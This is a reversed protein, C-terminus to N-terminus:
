TKTASKRRRRLLVGIAILLVILVVGVLALVNAPLGSPAVSTSTQTSTVSGISGVPRISTYLNYSAFLTLPPLSGQTLSGLTFLDTRFAQISDTYYIPVYPTHQAIIDQMEWIYKQRQTPDLSAHQLAYLQDVTSNSFGSDSECGPVCVQSTIFATLFLDPDLDEATWDWIFTDHQWNAVINGLSDSDVIAPVGKVNIQAWWNAIIQATRFEESYSSPVQIKYVMKVGDPSVRTGDPGIKYGADDLIKAAMTLNFPISPTNPNHWFSLASPMISNAPEAYGQWVTDALVTKNIAMALATRVRQDRLTPNGTGNPFMNFSLYFYRIDPKAIVQVNGTAALEPVASPPLIPGLIDIEGSRLALVMADTSTFYRIILHQIKPPGLFYNPNADLEAYSAPQFSVLKFPGTGVPNSDPYSAPNTVNQWIHQPLIFINQLDRIVFTADTQKLHIQLTYNDLATVKDISSVFRYDYTAPLSMMLNITFQADLATFPVGDQWTANRVLHLLMTQNDTWGWSEALDPTPVGSPDARELKDYIAGMVMTSGGGYASRMLPNLFTMVAGNWGVSFTSAETQAHTLVPITVISILLMIVYILSKARSFMWGSTPRVGTTLKFAKEKKSLSHYISKLCTLDFGSM